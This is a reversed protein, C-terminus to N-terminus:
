IYRRVKNKYKNYDDAFRSTLFNEEALIIKHYIFISFIGLISIIWNLTFIISAVTMLNFGLYMPNRSFRYLGNYKLITSEEPLGLRTSKGLNLISSFTIVFGFLFLLTSLFSILSFEKLNVVSLSLLFVGWTIYGSIKGSYFLFPNISTKGILEM